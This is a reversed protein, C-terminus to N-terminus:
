RRARAKTSGGKTSVASEIPPSEEVVVWPRVPGGNTPAFMRQSDHTTIVAGGDIRTVSIIEAFKMGLRQAAVARVEGDVDGGEQGGYTM